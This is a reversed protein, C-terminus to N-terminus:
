EGTFTRTRPVSGQFGPILAFDVMAQSLLVELIPGANKKDVSITDRSYGEMTEDVSIEDGANEKTKGDESIDEVIDEKTKGNDEVEQSKGDMCIANKFSGSIKEDVSIGDELNEVTVVSEEDSSSSHLSDEDERCVSLDVMNRYKTLNTQNRKVPGNRKLKFKVRRQQESKTVVDCDTTGSIQSRHEKSENRTASSDEMDTAQVKQDNTESVESQCKSKDAKTDERDLCENPHLGHVSVDEPPAEGTDADSVGSIVNDFEQTECDDYDTLSESSETFTSLASKYSSVSCVSDRIPVALVSLSLCPTIHTSLYVCAVLNSQFAYFLKQSLRQDTHSFCVPVLLTHHSHVLLCM